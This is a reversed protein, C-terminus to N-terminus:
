TEALRSQGYSSVMERKGSPEPEQEDDDRYRSIRALEKARRAQETAGKAREARMEQERYYSAYAADVGLDFRRTM